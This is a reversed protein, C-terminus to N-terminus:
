ANLADSLEKLGEAIEETTADDNSYLGKVKEKLDYVLKELNLNHRRNWQSLGRPCNSILEINNSDPPLNSCKWGDLIVKGLEESDM